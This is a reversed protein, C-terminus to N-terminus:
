RFRVPAAVCPNRLAGLGEIESVLLEGPQLWRQPRRAVGVGSPTGTFIVDGPMLTLVGSLYEIIQSVSFIMDGTRSEQVTEGDITCRMALDDPDLGAGRLEDVTVLTPGMPGFTMFSKGVSFQNAPATRQVTRESIDQGVCLGAVHDWASAADVHRAARGMVVVLECEWDVTDSPIEVAANPGTLCSVWKTFVNPAEPYPQRTEDAHARYNLGVAFVQRPAPSPAGLSADDLAVATSPDVARAAAVTDAWRDFAAAADPAVLVGRRAGESDDTVLHLASGISAFRM